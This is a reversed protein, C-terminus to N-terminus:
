SQLVKDHQTKALGLHENAVRARTEIVNRESALQELEQEAEEVQM